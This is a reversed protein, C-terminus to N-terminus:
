IWFYVEDVRSEPAPGHGGNEAHDRLSEVFEHLRDAQTSQFREREGFRKAWGAEYIAEGAAPPPGLRNTDRYFEFYAQMRQPSAGMRDLAVLMMPLHNAMFPAFEASFARTEVVLRRCTESRPVSPEGQPKALM